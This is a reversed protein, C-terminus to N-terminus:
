LMAGRVKASQEAKEAGQVSRSTINSRVDKEGHGMQICAGSASGVAIGDGSSAMAMCTLAEGNGQEDTVHFFEM